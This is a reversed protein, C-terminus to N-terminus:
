TTENSRSELTEGIEMLRAEVRLLHERLLSESREVRDNILFVAAITLMAAGTAIMPMGITLQNMMSTTVAIAVVSVLTFGFALRAAMTRQAPFDGRDRALVWGAFTTWGLGIFALITFLGRVPNPLSDPETMALSGCVLTGALGALGVVIYRLRLRASLHRELESRVGAEYRERLRPDRPDTEILSDTPADNRNTM